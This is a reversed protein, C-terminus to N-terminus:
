EFFSLVSRLLLYLRWPKCLKQLPRKGKCDPWISTYIVWLSTSTHPLAIKCYRWRKQQLALAVRIQSRPLFIDRYNGRCSVDRWFWALEEGLRKQDNQEFSSCKWRRHQLVKFYFCIKGNSSSLPVQDKNWSGSCSIVWVQLMRSIKSLSFDKIINRWVLGRQRWTSFIALATYFTKLYRANSVCCADHNQHMNYSHQGPNQNNSANERLVLVEEIM